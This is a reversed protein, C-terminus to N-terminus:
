TPPDLVTAEATLSQGEDQRDTYCPWQQAIRLSKDLAHKRSVAQVVQQVVHSGDDWEVRLEICYRM